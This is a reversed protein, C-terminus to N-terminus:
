SKLCAYIIFAIAFGISVVLLSAGVFGGLMSDRFKPEYQEVSEDEEDEQQHEDRAIIAVNFVHLCDSLYQALVYDPTGSLSEASHRNIADQIDKKLDDM